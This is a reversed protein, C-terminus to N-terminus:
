QQPVWLGESTQVLKGVTRVGKLKSRESVTTDTRKVFIPRRKNIEARLLKIERERELAKLGSLTGAAVERPISEELRVLMDKADNYEDLTFMGPKVIVFTRSKRTVTRETEVDVPAIPNETPAPGRRDKLRSAHEGGLQRRDIAVIARVTNM